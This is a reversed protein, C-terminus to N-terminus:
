RFYYTLLSAYLNKGVVGPKKLDRVWSWMHRLQYSGVAARTAQDYTGTVTVKYGAKYLCWQITQVDAGKSNWGIPSVFSAPRNFPPRLTRRTVPKPPTYPQPWQGFDVAYAVNKDVINRDVVMSGVQRIHSRPDWTGYSWALTQWGWPCVRQNMAAHIVKYGGYVGVRGYGLVSVAGRLYEMAATLTSSRAGADTDVAFYIPRNIGPLGLATVAALAEHADAVGAHYGELARSAYREFVVAVAIGDKVLADYEARSLAKGGSGGVYRVVFKVGALRLARPSPRGFSYDAGLLTM